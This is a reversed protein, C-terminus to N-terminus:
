KEEKTPSELMLTVPGDNLLSVEMHAAFQGTEVPVSGLLKLMKVFDQYSAQAQEPRAAELFSPRNGKRADGYLTFQSVALIAGGVDEVSRNMKGEDDEFIRLKLIKKAMWELDNQSDTHTVGVLLLLGRSIKGITEGAVVVSAHAVRQVLVRM